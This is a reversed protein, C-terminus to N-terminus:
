GTVEDLAAQIVEPDFGRRALFAYRRRRERFDSREWGGAAGYHRTLALRARSVPDAPADSERLAQTVLEEDLGLARLEARIRGEGWGRELRVRVRSAAFAPDNLYGLERCRVVVAAIQEATAGQSKLRWALEQEGYGRRALWRLAQAYCTEATM